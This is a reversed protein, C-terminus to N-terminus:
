RSDLYVIISRLREIVSGDNNAAVSSSNFSNDANNAGLINQSFDQNSADPSSSPEIFAAFAYIVLLLVIVLVVLSVLNFAFGVAKEKIIDKVSKM